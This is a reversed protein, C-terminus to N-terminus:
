LSLSLTEKNINGDRITLSTFALLNVNNFTGEDKLDLLTMFTSRFKCSDCM